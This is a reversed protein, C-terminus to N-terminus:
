NLIEFRVIFIGSENTKAKEVHEYEEDEVEMKSNRSPDDARCKKAPAKNTLM